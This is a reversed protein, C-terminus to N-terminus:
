HAHADAAESALEPFRHLAHVAHCSVCSEVLKSYYFGVLEPNQQRAFHNLQGALYHFLQDQKVFADPLSTQLEKVQADSLSQQLIYSSKIKHAIEAVDHWKGAAYAPIITQMGDQIALMEKQLLERLGPSLSEIGSTAHDPEHHTPDKGYSLSPILIASFLAASIFRTFKNMM